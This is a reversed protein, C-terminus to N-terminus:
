RNVALHCTFLVTCVTTKRAHPRLRSWTNAMCAFVTGWDVPARFIWRSLPSSIFDVASSLPPPVLPTLAALSGNGQRSSFRSPNRAAQRLSQSRSAALYAKKSSFPAAKDATILVPTVLSPEPAM